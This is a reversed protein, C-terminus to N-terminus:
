LGGMRHYSIIAALVLVFIGVIIYMIICTVAVESTRRDRLIEMNKVAPTSEWAVDEAQFAKKRSASSM